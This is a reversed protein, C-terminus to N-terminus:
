TNSNRAGCFMQYLGRYQKKSEKSNHIIIVYRNNNLKLRRCYGNIIISNETVCLLMSDEFVFEHATWKSIEVSAMFFVMMSSM